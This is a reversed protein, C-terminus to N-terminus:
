GDSKSMTRALSKLVRTQQLIRECQTRVHTGSLEVFEASTKAALLKRTFDLTTAMNAKMLEFAEQRYDAAAALASAEAPGTPDAAKAGEITPMRGTSLEAACELAADLGLKINDLAAAQCAKALKVAMDASSDSGEPDRSPEKRKGTRMTAVDPETEPQSPRVPPAADAPRADGGEEGANGPRKQRRAAPPGEAAVARPDPAAGEPAVDDSASAVPTPTLMADNAARTAAETLEVLSRRTRRQESVPESSRPKGM